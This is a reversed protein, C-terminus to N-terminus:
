ACYPPAACARASARKRGEGGEEVSAAYALLHHQRLREKDSAAVHLAEGKPTIRAYYMATAITGPTPVFCQVQRPRWHQKKLWASLAQMHAETCGPFASMLYPVVYQRKGAEHCHLAFAKLFKAFVEPGPKRMLRLVTHDSHEPAVKMQGGVFESVYAKLSESDQVLLDFRLGSAVRVHRVGPLSAIHRLLRVAESQQVRFFPCPAPHLCSYRVCDKDGTLGCVAQWMNASPGGVDSIAGAWRPAKMRGSALAAPGSAIREAESVISAPSRSSIRRGQHLALSCFSCGGGCGRHTTISTRIMEWAPIPRTYLPHPLRVYPLGYLVDMEEQNLPAAPPALVLVRGGSEQVAYQRGSHVHQELELTARMLLAAEGLIAEHSPLVRACSLPLSAFPADERLGFYSRAKGASALWATGPVDLCAEVLTKRSFAPQCDGKSYAPLAQVRASPRCSAASTSDAEKQEGRSESQASREKMGALALKEARVAIELAAREGMGYVLLDAKSEQLLNRHLSDDWFDYHSTRRLSAEIGGLVVPLEPFAYRLLGTYVIGARNPRAGALGGPTYADDRRKKRFATYHAVMSDVSGATVGAFLRPRGMVSLDALAEEKNRWRPQAVIGVRFGHAALWRGLLAAGFAPHDVYADGSLLLIDLGDWGALRMDEQCVPLYPPQSM